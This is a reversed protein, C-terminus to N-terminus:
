PLDFGADHAERYMKTVNPDGQLIPQPAGPSSQSVVVYEQPSLTHTPGNPLVKVFVHRPSGTPELNYVYDQRPAKQLRVAMVTGDASTSVLDTEAVPQEDALMAWGTTLNLHAPGTHVQCAFRSSSEGGVLVRYDRGPSSQVDRIHLKAEFYSLPANPEIPRGNGREEVWSEGDLYGTLYIEPNM